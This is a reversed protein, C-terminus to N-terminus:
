SAPCLSEVSQTPFRIQEGLGPGAGDKRERNTSSFAAAPLAECIVRLSAPVVPGWNVLGIAALGAGM